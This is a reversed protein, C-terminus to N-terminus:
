KLIGEQIIKKNFLEKKMQSLTIKKEESIQKPKIEKSKLPEDIIYINNTVAEEIENFITSEKYNIFSYTQTILYESLNNKAIQLEPENISDCQEMFKMSVKKVINKYNAQMYDEPTTEKNTISKKIKNRLKKIKFLNPIIAALPFFVLLILLSSGIILDSDSLIFNFLNQHKQKLAMFFFAVFPSFLLSLTFCMRITSFIGLYEDKDKSIASLSKIKIDNEKINITNKISIEKIYLEKLESEILKNKEILSRNDSVKKVLVYINM